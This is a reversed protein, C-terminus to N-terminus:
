KRATAVNAVMRSVLGTGDVLKGLAEAAAETAASLRDPARQEIETRLPTGQCLGIAAMVPSVSRSKKEVREIAVQEFGAETLEEEIVQPDHYGFPVRSFFTPPDRPFIAALARATIATVPNDEIRGWSNFLFSGGPRLVRRAERYAAVRDPFFMVGFQCVVLDFSEDGFPLSM